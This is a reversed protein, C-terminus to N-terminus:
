HSLDGALSNTGSQTHQPAPASEPGLQKSNTNNGEAACLM